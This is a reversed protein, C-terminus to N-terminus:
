LHLFRTHLTLASRGAKPFDGLHTSLQSQLRQALQQGLLASSMERGGTWGHAPECEPDLSAGALRHASALPSTDRGQAPSLDWRSLTWGVGRAFWAMGVLVNKRAM